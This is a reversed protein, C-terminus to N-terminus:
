IDMIAFQARIIAYSNLIWIGFQIKLNRCKKWIKMMKLLPFRLATEQYVYVYRINFFSIGYDYENNHTFISM